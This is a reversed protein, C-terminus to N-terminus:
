LLPRGGARYTEKTTKRPVRHERSIRRLGWGVAVMEGERRGGDMGGSKARMTTAEKGDPLNKRLEALTEISMLRAAYGGVCPWWRGRGGQVRGEDIVERWRYGIQRYEM